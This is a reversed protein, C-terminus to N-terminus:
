EHQFDPSPSQNILLVYIQHSSSALKISRNMDDIDLDLIVVFFSQNRPFGHEIQCCCYTLNMLGAVHGYRVSKLDFSCIINVFIDVFDQLGLLLLM